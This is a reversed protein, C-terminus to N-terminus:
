AVLPMMIIIMAFGLLDAPSFVVGIWLASLVTASIPEVTSLMATKLSGIEHVGQMYFLYSCWTGLVVLAAFVWLASLVTASIPEVTSLMATKLSGIEHVGQMYFLYSCWTGLVVLAAFVVWCSLDFSAAAQGWDPVFPAAILGVLLMAWGNVASVGYTSLIKGPFVALGAGGLAALLGFALGAPPLAMQSPDGGTTILFTGALALVMGIVERRKPARRGIVCAVAAVPLLQLSQLVTATASNTAQIAMLYSFQNLFLGAGAFLLLDRVASKDRLLLLQLSQLVTATASNTAQIAMLYSFQNLFLGAGAFLLLDRVASKDRLLEFPRRDGRAASFLLFLIGALVLRVSMVWMPDIGSSRFLYSVATGSFGWLAGGVLACAMGRLNMRYSGGHGNTRGEM